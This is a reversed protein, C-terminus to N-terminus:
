RPEQFNEPHWLPRPRRWEGEQPLYVIRVAGCRRCYKVETGLVGGELLDAAVNQMAHVCDDMWKDIETLSTM